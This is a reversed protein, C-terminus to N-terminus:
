TSIQKDAGTILQGNAGGSKVGGANKLNLSQYILTNKSATSSKGSILNSSPDTGAGRNAGSGTAMNANNSFVSLKQSKRRPDKSHPHAYQTGHEQKNSAMTVPRTQSQSVYANNAGSPVQGASSNAQSNKNMKDILRKSRGGGATM